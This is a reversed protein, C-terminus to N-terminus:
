LSRAMAKGQSRAQGTVGYRGGVWSYKGSNGGTEMNAGEDYSATCSAEKTVFNLNAASVMVRWLREM